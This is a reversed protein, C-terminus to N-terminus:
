DLRGSLLVVVLLVFALLMTVARALGAPVGQVPARADVRGFGRSAPM